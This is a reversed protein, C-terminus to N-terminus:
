RTSNSDECRLQEVSRRDQDFNTTWRERETNLQGVSRRDEDFNITRRIRQRITNLNKPGRVFSLNKRMQNRKWDLRGGTTETFKSHDAKQHGVQPKWRTIRADKCVVHGDSPDLFWGLLLDLNQHPGWLWKVEIRYFFNSCNRLDSSRVFVPLVRQTLLESQLM